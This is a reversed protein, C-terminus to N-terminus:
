DDPAVLEGDIVSAGQSREWEDIASMTRQYASQSQRETQGRTVEVTCESWRRALATPTLSVGPWLKRYAECRRFIDPPDAGAERIEKLAKNWAGRESKTPKKDTLGCGEIMAEWLEDRKAGAPALTKKDTDTDTDTDTHCETRVADPTRESQTREANATGKSHRRQASARAKTSKARVAELDAEVRPHIWEDDTVEFFEALVERNEEWEEVHMRVVNALRESDNKLPKGRQWYNFLLLLYAGHQKANLHMTDALYDAVYFQMYPLAAM